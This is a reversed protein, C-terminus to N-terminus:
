HNTLWSCIIPHYVTSCVEERRRWNNNLAVDLRTRGPFREERGAKMKLYGYLFSRYFRRLLHEDKVLSMDVPYITSYAFLSAISRFSHIAVHEHALNYMSEPNGFVDPAFSHLGTNAVASFAARLLHDGVRSADQAIQSQTAKATKLFTAVQEYVSVSIPIASSLIHNLQADVDDASTFRADFTALHAPSLRCPLASQSLLGM